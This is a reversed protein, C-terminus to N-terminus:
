LNSKRTRLLHWSSMPCCQEASFSCTSLSGILWSKPESPWPPWTIRHRFSFLSLRCGSHWRSITRTARMWDECAFRSGSIWRFHLDSSLWKQLPRSGFSIWTQRRLCKLSRPSSHRPVSSTCLLNIFPRSPRTTLGFVTCSHLCAASSSQGPMAQLSCSLHRWSLAFSSDVAGVQLSARVSSSSAFLWSQCSFCPMELWHWSSTSALHRCCLCSGPVATSSQRPLSYVEPSM